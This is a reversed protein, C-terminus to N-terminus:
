SRQSNITEKIANVMAKVEDDKFRIEGNQFYEDSATSDFSFIPKEQNVFSDIVTNEKDGYNIDLYCDARKELIELEPGVVSPYLHVNSYRVLKILKEGMITWAAINFTIQPLATVLAEINALNEDRTFILCEGKEFYDKIPPLPRHEIIEHWELDAYKWWYERMRGSYTMEWPKQPGTFHIIKPNINKLNEFLDHNRPYYFNLFDYGIVYNYEYGLHLYHKNFFHNLVTQDGEVLDDQRGFALMQEVIDPQMAQLLRNNLLLVGANFDGQYIVDPVAAIPAEQLNLAFLDDLNGNVITDSDLYLVRDEDIFRPILIRGYTLSNIQPQSVHEKNILNEDIHLNIVRSNINKIRNNINNFWEQPIDTNIVYLTINHNHYFLSKAAATVQNIYGYDASLVVVKREM